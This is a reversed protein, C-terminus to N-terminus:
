LRMMRRMVMVKLEQVRLYGASVFAHDTSLARNTSSPLIPVRNRLPQLNIEIDLCLQLVGWAQV